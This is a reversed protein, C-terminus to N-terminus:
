CLIWRMSIEVIVFTAITMTRCCKRTNWMECCVIGDSLDMIAKVAM